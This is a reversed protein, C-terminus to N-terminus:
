LSGALGIGGGSVNGAADQNVVPVIKVPSTHVSSVIFGVSSGVVAGGIVDTIFHYGAMVRSAGVLSAIALSGALIFKPRNSHPHLRREAIYLATSIAFADTTHASLFSLSADGSNRVSLPAKDGYLFPRPRGAALTMIEAVASATVMAEAIVVGDNLTNLVGEDVVLLGLSGAAIVGLEVHSARSWGASYYGATRKDLWNIGVGDCSPACYAPQQKILRGLMYVLGVALIPPDIEAYLQFAPRTPNQPSPIIPTLEASKAVSKAEEVKEPPADAAPKAIDGSGDSGSGSGANPAAASGQAPTEARALACGLMLIIVLFCRM